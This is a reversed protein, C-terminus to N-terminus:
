RRMSEALHYSHLHSRLYSADVNQLPRLALM